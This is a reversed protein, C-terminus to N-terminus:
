IRRTKCPGYDEQEHSRKMNHENVDNVDNSTNPLDRYPLSSPEVGEAVLREADEKEHPRKMSHENSDNMDDSPNSLDRSALPGPAVLEAALRDAFTVYPKYPIKMRRIIPWEMPSTADKPNRLGNLLETTIQAEYLLMYEREFIHTVLLRSQFRILQPRASLFRALTFSVIYTTPKPLNLKREQLQALALLHCIFYPDETWEKPTIQALRKNYIRGVIHNLTGRPGPCAMFRRGRSGNVSTYHVYGVLPPPSNHIHEAPENRRHFM